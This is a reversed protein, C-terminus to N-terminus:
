LDKWVYKGQVFLLKENGQLINKKKNVKPIKHILFSM